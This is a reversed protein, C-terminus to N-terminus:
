VYLIYAILVAIAVLLLSLAVYRVLRRDRPGPLVAVDVLLDGPLDDPGVAGGEGRVRLEVGDTVGAPIRVKLVRRLEVQGVGDCQPCVEDDPGRMGTGGCAPCGGVAWYDIRRRAGEDVEFSRIEVTARADAGRSPVRDLGISRGTNGRGRHGFRDYLRRSEPKSLVGYAEALLRFRLEDEASDSVDPHCDRALTHFAERIAEEDADRPVGLLEYYDAKVAAM